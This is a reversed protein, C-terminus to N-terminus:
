KKAEEAVVRRFADIIQRQLGLLLPARFGEIAAKLADTTFENDFDWSEVVELAFADRLDQCYLDFGLNYETFDGAEKCQELLEANESEYKKARRALASDFMFAAKAAKAGVPDVLTIHHGSLSGDSRIVEFRRSETPIEAHYLESLNM